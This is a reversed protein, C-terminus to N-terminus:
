PAKPRRDQWRLEQELQEKHVMMELLGKDMEDLQRTLRDSKELVNMNEQQAQHLDLELSNLRADAEQRTEEVTALEKERQMLTDRVERWNQELVRKEEDMQFIIKENNM